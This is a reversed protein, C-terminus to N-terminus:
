EAMVEKWKKETTRENEPELDVNRETTTGGMM